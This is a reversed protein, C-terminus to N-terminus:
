HKLKDMAETIVHTVEKVEDVENPARQQSGRGNGKRRARKSAPKKRQVGVPGHKAGPQHWIWRVLLGLKAAIWVKLTKDIP